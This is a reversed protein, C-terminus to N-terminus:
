KQERSGFERTGIQPGPAQCFSLDSAKMGHHLSKLVCLSLPGAGITSVDM